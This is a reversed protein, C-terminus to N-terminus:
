RNMNQLIFLLQHCRWTTHSIAPNAAYLPPLSPPLLRDARAYRGGEDIISIFLKSSVQGSAGLDAEVPRGPGSQAGTAPRPDTADSLCRRALGLFKAEERGRRKRGDGGRHVLLHALNGAAWSAFHGSGEQWFRHSISTREDTRKRRVESEWVGVRGAEDREEAEVPRKLASNPTIANQGRAGDIVM